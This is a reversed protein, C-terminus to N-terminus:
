ITPAGREREMGETINLLRQVNSRATLLSQMESKTQRYERHAQKKETLMPAYEAHLSAITPLKKDKGYRNLVSCVTQSKEVRM